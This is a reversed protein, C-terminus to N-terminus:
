QSGIRSLRWHYVISGGAKGHHICYVCRSPKRENQKAGREKQRDGRVTLSSLDDTRRRRTSLAALLVGFLSDGAPFQNAGTDLGVLELSEGVALGISLSVQGAYESGDSRLILTRAVCVRIQKALEAAESLSISPLLVAFEDGGLHSAIDQAKIHTRLIEAIKLLVKDGIVHGHTDNIRKILPVSFAM